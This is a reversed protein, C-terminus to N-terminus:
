EFGPAKLRIALNVGLHTFAASATRFLTATAWSVIHLVGWSVFASLVLLICLAALFSKCHRLTDVFSSSLSHVTWGKEIIRLVAAAVRPQELELQLERQLAATQLPLTTDRM